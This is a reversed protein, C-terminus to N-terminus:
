IIIFKNKDDIKGYNNCKKCSLIKEEETVKTGFATNDDSIQNNEDKYFVAEAEIKKPSLLEVDKSGCNLCKYGMNLQYPM